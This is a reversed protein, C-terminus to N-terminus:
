ANTAEQLDSKKIFEGCASCRYELSRQLRGDKMVKGQYVLVHAKRGEQPVTCGVASDAYVKEM